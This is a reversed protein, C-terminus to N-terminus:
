HLIYNLTGSAYSLYPVLFSTTETIVQDHFLVRAGASIGHSEASRKPGSIQLFRLFPPQIHGSAIAHVAGPLTVSRRLDALYIPYTYVLICVSINCIYILYTYIHTYVYICIHTIMLISDLIIDTKLVLSFIEFFNGKPTHRM